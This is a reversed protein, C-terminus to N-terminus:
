CHRQIARPTLNHRILRSNRKGKWGRIMLIVFVLISTPVVFAAVAYAPYNGSGNQVYRLLTLMHYNAVYVEGTNSNTEISSITYNTEFTSVQNLSPLSIVALRNDGAAYLLGRRDDVSLLTLNKFGDLQIVSDSQLSPLMFSYVKNTGSLMYIEHGYIVADQVFISEKIKVTSLISGNSIDIIEIERPVPCVAVIKEKYQLLVTPYSPLTVSWVLSGNIGDVLILRNGLGEAVYGTGKIPLIQYINETEKRIPQYTGSRVEIYYLSDGSSAYLRSSSTDLRIQSVSFPITFNRVITGRETDVVTMFFGNPPYEGSVSFVYVMNASPDPAIAIPWSMGIQVNSVFIIGADLPPILLYM